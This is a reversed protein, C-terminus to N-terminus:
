SELGSPRPRNEYALRVRDCVLPKGQARYEDSYIEQPPAPESGEAPTGAPQQRLQVNILVVGRNEEDRWEHRADIVYSNSPDIENLCHEADRLIDQVTREFNKAGDNV